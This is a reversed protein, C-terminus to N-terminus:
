GWPLLASRLVGKDGQFNGGQLTQQLLETDCLVGSDLVQYGMQQSLLKQGWSWVYLDSEQMVRLDAKKSFDWLQGTM